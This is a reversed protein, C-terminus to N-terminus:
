TKNNGEGSLDYLYVAAGLSKFSDIRVGIEGLYQLFFKEENLGSWSRVHSFLLWVRKQGRLKDLDRCYNFWSDRAGVGKIYDGQYNYRPGYYSFAAAAGCYLYLVDNNKRNRIFYEIAPRSEEFGRSQGLHSIAHLTPHLFLLCLFIIGSVVSFRALGLFIQAAGAGVFLIIAPVVFLLLRDAFPYLHMGSSLLCLLIPAILMLFIGKNDSYMKVGGVLTALMGIGTMTIGVPNNIVKFFSWTFWEIDAFSKPILPMFNNNFFGKFMDNSHLHQLSLFYFAVFSIGCVFGAGMLVSLKNYQRNKFYDLAYSLFIGAFIFVSPHSFWLALAGILGFIIIQLNTPKKHWFYTGLLLLLLGIAVDSSYQKLEASYYILSDSIAFLGLAIPIAMPKLCQKAVYYFLVLAVVGSIFPFLRLIYEHSGLSDILIKQIMLFGIPANYSFLSFVKNFPQDKLLLVIDLEDFWLSRNYLYETLRFIIGFSLIGWIIWNIKIKRVFDLM